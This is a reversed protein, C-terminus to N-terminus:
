QVVGDIPEERELLLSAAATLVEPQSITADGWGYVAVQASGDPRATAVVVMMAAPKVGSVQVAAAMERLFRPPTLEARNGDLAPTLKM